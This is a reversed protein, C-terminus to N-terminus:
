SFDIGGKSGILNVHSNDLHEKKELPTKECLSKLDIVRRALHKREKPDKFLEAQKLFSTYDGAADFRPIDRKKAGTLLVRKSAERKQAEQVEKDEEKM